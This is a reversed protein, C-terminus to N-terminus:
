GPLLTELAPAELVEAMPLGARNMRVHIYADSCGLERAAAMVQGHQRVARLIQALDLDLSPRGRLTTRMGTVQRIFELLVGGVSPRLYQSGMGDSSGTRLVVPSPNKQRLAFEFWWRM